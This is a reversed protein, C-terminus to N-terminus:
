FSLRAPISKGPPRLGIMRPRERKDLPGFPKNGKQRRLAGKGDSGLGERDKQRYLAASKRGRWTGERDKQRCLARGECERWTGEKDKQRCLGREEIWALGRETMRVARLAPLIEGGGPPFFHKLSLFIKKKNKFYWFLVIFVTLLLSFIVHFNCPFFSAASSM